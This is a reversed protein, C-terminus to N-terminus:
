QLSLGRLRLGCRELFFWSIKIILDNNQQQEQGTYGGQGKREMKKSKEACICDHNPVKLGSLSLRFTIPQRVMANRLVCVGVHVCVSM